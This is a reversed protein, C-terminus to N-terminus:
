VAVSIISAVNSAKLCALSVPLILFPVLSVVFAISLPTALSTKIASSTSGGSTTACRGIKHSSLFM